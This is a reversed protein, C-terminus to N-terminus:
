NVQAGSEKVVKAWKEIENAVFANVEAPSKSVVQGGVKAIREQTDQTALAERIEANLKAVIEAPTGAPALIGFWTTVEYGPVTEAITPVDPAAIARESGTTALLRLNGNKALPLITLASDFMVQVENGLLGAVAPPGGKYPVLVINAGTMSKFLEAALHATSGPGHSGYNLKGPSAKALDILEQVTKVPLNNNVVLTFPSTAVLAVATFDKAADFPLKKFLSPNVGFSTTALFITYGDPAARAVLEAGINGGAGARNDVIVSQGLRTSLKEAVIRALVDSAGGPPWGVVLRITREPYAAASSGSWAMGFVAIALGLLGFRFKTATDM